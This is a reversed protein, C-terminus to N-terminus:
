LTLPLESLRIKLLKLATFGCQVGGKGLPSDFPPDECVGHFLFIGFGRM